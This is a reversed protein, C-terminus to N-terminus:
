PLMVDFWYNIKFFSRPKHKAKFLVKSIGFSKKKNKSWVAEVRQKKFWANNRTFANMM